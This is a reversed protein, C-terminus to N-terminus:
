FIEHVSTSGLLHWKTCQPLHPSYQWFLIDFQPIDTESNKHLAETKTATQQMFKIYELNMSMRCAINPLNAASLSFTAPGVGRGNAPIALKKSGFSDPPRAPFKVPSLCDFPISWAFNIFLSLCATRGGTSCWHDSGPAPLSAFGGCIKWCSNSWFKEKLINQLTYWLRRTLMSFQSDLVSVIRM